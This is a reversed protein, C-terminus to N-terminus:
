QKSIECGRPMQKRFDDISANLQIAREGKKTGTDCRALVDRVRILAGYHKRFAPCRQTEPNKAAGEIGARAVTPPAAYASAFLWRIGTCALIECAAGIGDTDNALRIDKFVFDPREAVATAVAEDAAFAIDVVELGAAVLWEEIQVALFFEDEVILVRRAPAVAEDPPGQSREQPRSSHPNTRMFSGM